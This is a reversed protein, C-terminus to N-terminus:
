TTLKRKSKETEVVHRGTVHSKARFQNGDSWTSLTLPQVCVIAFSAAEVDAQVYMSPIIGYVSTRTHEIGVVKAGVGVGM